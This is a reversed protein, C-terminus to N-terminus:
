ADQQFHWGQMEKVLAVVADRAAELFQRGKEETAFEPMGIVGSKSIENFESILSFPPPHLMDNTRYGMQPGPGDRQAKSMDVLEAHTSLMVSTEMECAHGMGGDPSTRIENFRSAALNWYTAYVIYLDKLDAFESKLERQAAKCPTDNGGHGNLLLIKRAGMAVLSRCIGRIMEVYPVFDVSVCGFHRHHPSHGLWQTPLMVIEKTLEREVQSAVESVIYSDTFLPLHQGHQELSGLPVVFLHRSVDKLDPWRLNQILM